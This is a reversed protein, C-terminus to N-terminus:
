TRGAMWGARNVLCQLKLTPSSLNEHAFVFQLENAGGSSRTHQGNTLPHSKKQCQESDSTAQAAFSCASWVYIVTCGSSHQARSIAAVIWLRLLRFFGLPEPGEPAPGAAVVSLLAAPPTSVAVVPSVLGHLLNWMSVRIELGQSGKRAPDTTASHLMHPETEVNYKLMEHYQAVRQRKLNSWRESRAM